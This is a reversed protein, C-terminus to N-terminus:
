RRRARRRLHPPNRNDPTAARRSAGCTSASASARVPRDPVLIDCSSRRGAGADAPEAALFGIVSSATCAASFGAAPLAFAGGPAPLVTPVVSSNAGATAFLAAPITDNVHYAANTTM